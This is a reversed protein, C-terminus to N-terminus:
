RGALSHVNRTRSPFGVIDLLSSPREGTGVAQLRDCLTLKGCLDATLLDVQPNRSSNM